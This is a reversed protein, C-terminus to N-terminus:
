SRLPLYNRGPQQPRIQKFVSPLQRPQGLCEDKCSVDDVVYTDSAYDPVFSTNKRQGVAGEREWVKTASEESVPHCAAIADAKTIEGVGIYFGILNSVLDERSFGSDYPKNLFMETFFNAIGGFELSQQLREFGLSVQIFISLAVSKLETEPLNRRILYSQTEGLRGVRKPLIMEQRLTVRYGTAGDAFRAKGDRRMDKLVRDSYSYQRFDPPYHYGWAVQADPGGGKLQSWLNQAGIIKNDNEPSLHGLDLWGCNCTYILGYSIDNNNLRKYGTKIDKFSSM